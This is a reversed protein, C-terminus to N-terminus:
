VHARGIQAHIQPAPVTAIQGADLYWRRVFGRGCPNDDSAEHRACEGDIRCQGGTAWAYRLPLDTAIAPASLQWPNANVIKGVWQAAKKQFHQAGSIALTKDIVPAQQADQVLLRVQFGPAPRGRPACATANVIVDCAPKYPAFDSEARVCAQPDDDFYRDEVHLAAKIVPTLTSQAGLLYAAKAVVVHFASAHQDVMDFQVADLPTRNEFVLNPIAFHAAANTAM